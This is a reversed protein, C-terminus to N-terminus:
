VLSLILGTSNAHNAEEMKPMFLIGENKTLSSCHERRDSVIVEQKERISSTDDILPHYCALLVHYYM